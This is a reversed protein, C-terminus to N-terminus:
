QDYKATIPFRIITKLKDPTTKRPDSLYIEHHKRAETLDLKYASAEIFDMLMEITAPETDYSGIHMVQACLGENFSALEAISTDLDPKKAALSAKSSALVDHTVFDPMRIMSTWKFTNKDNLDVEDDVEPSSWLGELPPVVFDFYGAPQTDGMKSMKITYSLSFLAAMAKQYNDSTNPDGIGSVMLFLMEPVKIIVPQTGPQYLQKDTKKFDISM